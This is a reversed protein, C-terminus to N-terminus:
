LHPPTMQLPARLAASSGPPRLCRTLALVQFLFHSILGSSAAFVQAGWDPESSVALGGLRHSEYGECDASRGAAGWRGGPQCTCALGPSFASAQLLFRHLFGAGALGVHDGLVLGVLFSGLYSHVSLLM